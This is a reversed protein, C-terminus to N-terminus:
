GNPVLEVNKVPNAFNLSSDIEWTEDPTTLQVYYRGQPIRNLKTYFRKDPTLFLQLTKDQDKITPHILRLVLETDLNEGLNRTRIFLAGSDKDLTLFAKIGRSLALQQKDLRKNIAMGDKYWDERVLSDEGDLALTIMIVGMVVSSMPIAILFWPWFQRYWPKTDTRM